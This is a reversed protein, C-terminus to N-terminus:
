EEGGCYKKWITEQYGAVKDRKMALLIEELGPDSIHSLMKLRKDSIREQSKSEEYNEATMQWYRFSGGYYRKLKWAILLGEPDFDGAYYVTIGAQALLDLLLLASLRPQGNMCMCARKGRWKGCFMAYVSPNEVIFIRGGPCAVRGWGAIVALPVQAMDGEQFFGEMGQHLSGDKKWARLGCVMAYNSIDDRLIGAELYLRQKKMAPFIEGRGSSDPIDRKGKGAEWRILQWLLQGERSGDDFAHPNGTVMAASVALYVSEGRRCPLRNLIEAALTLLRRGEEPKEGQERYRKMVWLWSPDAGRGKEEGGEKLWIEAPTGACAATIEELMRRWAEEKEERLERKGTMAEHFYAELVAKPEAGSFRSHELAKRFRDASISISKQGHYNKQFFGELAEREEAAIDRLVVTGAFTGYSAYKERFGRLMRDFVPASRFYAACEAAPSSDPGSKWREKM